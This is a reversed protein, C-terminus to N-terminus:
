SNCILYTMQHQNQQASKNQKIHAGTADRERFVTYSQGEKHCFSDMTYACMNLIWEEVTTAYTPEMAYNLIASYYIGIHLHRQWILGM